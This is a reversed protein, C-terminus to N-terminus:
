RLRWPFYYMLKREKSSIATSSSASPVMRSLLLSLQFHVVMFGFSIGFSGGASRFGAGVVAGTDGSFDETLTFGAIVGATEAGDGELTSATGGGFDVGRGGVPPVIRGVEGGEALGVLFSM